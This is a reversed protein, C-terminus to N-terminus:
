WLPYVNGQNARRDAAGGGGAAAGSARATLGAHLVLIWDLVRLM